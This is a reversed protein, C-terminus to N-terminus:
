GAICLLDFDIWMLDNVPLLSENNNLPFFIVTNMGTHQALLNATRYDLPFKAQINLSYQVQPISTVRNAINESCIDEYSCHNFRFRSLRCNIIGIYLRYQITQSALILQLFSYVNVAKEYVYALKVISGYFIDM